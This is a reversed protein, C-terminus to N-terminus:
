SLLGAAIGPIGRANVYVGPLGAGRIERVVERETEFLSDRGRKARLKLSRPLRWGFYRECERVDKPDKFPFVNLLVRDELGVERLLRAHRDLDGLDTTPPQALLYDAGARVRGRARAAGKATALSNVDVPAFFKATAGARERLIAAERITEALSSFDRVNTAGAPYDDGWALLLYRFKSLGTLVSSLFQHRGFDRVVLVPAAVVGLREQLLSAAELSSFKLLRPNKVDAVLLVDSHRRLSRAEELFLGVTEELDFNDKGSRSAPFLPPLLEVVRLFAM